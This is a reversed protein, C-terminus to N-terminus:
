TLWDDGSAPAIGIDYLALLNPLEPHDGLAVPTDRPILRARDFVAICEQASYRSRYLIGDVREGHAFVASSWKNTISYDPSSLILSDGGLAVLSSTFDAVRLTRTENWGLRSVARANLEEEDILLPLPGQAFRDRIVTEM